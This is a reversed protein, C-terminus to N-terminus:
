CNNNLYSDIEKIADSSSYCVIALYGQKNLLDIWIKQNDSLKGNKTKMEIFLGHYKQNPIPFFLDPIGPTLGERKMKSVIRAAKERDFFSLSQSNPIAFCLIKKLKCYDIVNKQLDHETTKGKSNKIGYNAWLNRQNFKRTM